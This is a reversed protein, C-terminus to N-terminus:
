YIVKVLTLGKAPATVGAANRSKAELAEKVSEPSREGLGVEMLTGTLIRIMKYLFGNGEYTIKLDDNEVTLDIRDIRRVSSKKMRTNACFSKFDHEGVLYQAAKQMAEVDLSEELLYMYKREFVNKRGNMLIRYQYIKGKANLRSHFRESAVEVKMVGIDDPLYQNLYAQLKELAMRKELHVNAVQELAHVGADTRGAGDIEVEAEVMRGLVTEIKGQITNDTREQRQWGEYRSGDYQIYLRYNM